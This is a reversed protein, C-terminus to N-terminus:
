AAHSQQAGVASITAPTRWVLWQALAINPVWCLWSIVPYASAFPIGAALSLPLYIRLTVAALTLSYSRIMWARHLTENGSRIAVYARATTILWLVALLGFGVHTMWGQESVVAMRLAGLGGVLVGVVYTRGMWRHIGIARARLRANMQWAGVALAVLAGGLHAMLAVPMAARRVAIFPPGFGPILLVAATYAAVLTALVTMAVWLARKM